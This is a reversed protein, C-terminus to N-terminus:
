FKQHNTQESVVGVNRSLNTGLNIKKSDELLPSPKLDLQYRVLACSFFNMALFKKDLWPIIAVMWTDTQGDTQRDPHRDTRYRSGCKKVSKSLLPTLPLRM